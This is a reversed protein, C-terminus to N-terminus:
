RWGAARVASLARDIVEDPPGTADISVGAEGPALPELTALQSGLLSAPMYRHRRTRVRAGLEDPAVDLLLFVADAAVSRIADRHRRRLASCAVVIAGAAALTEGVRVLWPERDADTLPIGAAMKRVNAAPHLDDADVFPVHAAAALGQGVTTKGAGSVGMVVLRM